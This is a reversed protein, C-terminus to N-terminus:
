GGNIAAISGHDHTATGLRTNLETTIAPDVKYTIAWLYFGYLMGWRIKDRAEDFDIDIGNAAMHGLYHRLLDDEHKRREEVPLASCMHYGVDLFWSSREVLQWDVFTPQGAADLFVNGLHSDGHIVCWEPGNATQEVLRAFTNYILEPDRIEAPVGAGVSSEFNDRIEKVGRTITYDQARPRLWSLSALDPRQWTASHLEALQELSQATQDATYPSLADLFEAGQVVVDETIVIGHKTDPNVDAYVTKLTRMKTTPALDRYFSGEIEGLFGLSKGLENLYGKVCLDPSLGPALDGDIHFRANVAVRDVVPGPTVSTVKTGPFRKSLAESLWAPDQIQDLDQPAPDIM